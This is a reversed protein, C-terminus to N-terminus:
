LIFIGDVEAPDASTDIMGDGNLDMRVSLTDIVDDTTGGTVELDDVDNVSGGLVITGGGVSTLDIIIDDGRVKILKALDAAEIGFAELNIKDDAEFDTIVDVGDGDAPSFVFTDAEGVGGTMTDDGAGGIITDEGGEGNLTDGGAGGMLTDGETGGNLTDVGDGGMLTDAGGEGNLTDKGAGGMLRNANTDGTIMDDEDSGMVNEIRVLTDSGAYSDEDGQDAADQVGGPAGLNVTVAEPSLEYSITDGGDGGIVNDPGPGAIFTDDHSSGVVQEIDVLTDGMADGATGKGSALNVTIGAMAGAYTVVDVSAPGAEIALEGDDTDDGDGNLDVADRATIMNNEERADEGGDLHDAGPGGILIDVGAMGRLMDDGKGGTLMNGRHDGTLRDDHDSGTLYEFTSVDVPDGEGARDPDFADRQVEVEDGEAHGGSFTLATLNVHVGADSSAYSLTDNDDDVGDAGTGSTGGDMEDAGAGGEITDNGEGGILEDDGALGSLVNAREDGTLNDDHASGAVNEFSDDTLNDGQAHGGSVSNTALNVTVGRDSNEYSVTDTGAGGDLADAGDLGNIVNSEGDGTLDDNENTGVLNEINTIGGEGLIVTVGSKLRAYSVTDVARPDNFMETSEDMNDDTTGPDDAPGMYPSDPMNNGDDDDYAALWGNIISDAADAYIMDSGAGGYFVDAGPGGHLMDNGGGGSHTDNGYGGFIMDAGGDGHLTDNGGGPGGYLKDDGGMGMITNARSDGALIDAMGSGTLNVIDPVTEEHEQMEGDEDPLEYTRTVTDGWTDGEADGGMAQQSHLRVTVGMMSSAYSATDVGDGGTLQDAGYGGELEDDGDNGDLTDDGGGGYLKDAGRDGNLTDNGGLGWLRNIGKDGTLTDDHESGIVNEINEGITDGEADGGSATGARLNITVGMASGMYTITDMGDNGNLKDAGKGGSILDNGAGGNVTDNGGGAYITDHGALGAISEGNDTGNIKDDGGTGEIEAGEGVPLVAEESVTVTYMGSNDAGPNGTYGSVSIFYKQTGSGAEPRFTIQSGLVGKAANVDDNMYGTPNGKSDLLKLVSDNLHGTATDDDKESTRGVSITYEKGESLEVVIWDEDYKDRLRATVTSAKSEGDFPGNPPTFCLQTETSAPADYGMGLASATEENYPM